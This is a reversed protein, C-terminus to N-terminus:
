EDSAEAQARSRLDKELHENMMRALLRLMRQYADQPLTPQPPPPLFLDGQRARFRFTTPMLVEQTEPFISRRQPVRNL